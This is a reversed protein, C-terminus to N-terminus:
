FEGIGIESKFAMVEEGKVAHLAKCVLPTTLNNFFGTM